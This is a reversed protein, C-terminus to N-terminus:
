PLDFTGVLFSATQGRTSTQTPCFKRAGCGMAAGEAALQEVWAAFPSGTPVDTFIGRPPPPSYGAGHEARLILMAAQERTVLGQPCFRSLACGSTIGEAALREIYAAAFASAPVDLFIAGTAPPPHYAGGHKAKLL